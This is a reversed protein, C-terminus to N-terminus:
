KQVCKVRKKMQVKLQEKRVRVKVKHMLQVCSGALSM